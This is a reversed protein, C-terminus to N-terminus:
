ILFISDSGGSEDLFKLTPLPLAFIFNPPVPSLISYYSDTINLYFAEFLEEATMLRGAHTSHTQAVDPLGSQSCVSRGLAAADMSVSVSPSSSLVRAHVPALASHDPDPITSAAQDGAYLVQSAQRVSPTNTSELAISVGTESSMM